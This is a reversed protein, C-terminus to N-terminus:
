DNRKIEDEIAILEEILDGLPVEASVSVARLVRISCRDLDKNFATQLTSESVDTEKSIRYRTLGYREMYENLATKKTM